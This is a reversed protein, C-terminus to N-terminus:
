ELWLATTGIEVTSPTTGNAAWRYWEPEGCIRISPKGSASLYVHTAARLDRVFGDAVGQIVRAGFVRVSDTTVPVPDRRGPADLTPSVPAAPEGDAVHEVWVRDVPVLPAFVEVQETEARYYDQETLVPVYTRSGQVVPDDARLDGRFGVGPVGVIVRRGRLQPFLSAPMPVVSAPVHDPM